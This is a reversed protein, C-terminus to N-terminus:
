RFPRTTASRGARAMGIVSSSARRASRARMVRWHRRSAWSSTKRALLGNISTTKSSAVSSAAAQRDPDTAPARRPSRLAGTRPQRRRRHHGPRRYDGAFYYLPQGNWSVQMSGDPRAFTAITGAVGMGAAATEGAKVTFAPWNTTCNSSTCASTSPGDDAFLWLAM